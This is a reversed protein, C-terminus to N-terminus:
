PMLEFWKMAELHPYLKLKKSSGIPPPIDKGM